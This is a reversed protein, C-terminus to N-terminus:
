EEKRRSSFTEDIKKMAEEPVKNPIIVCEDRYVKFGRAAEATKTNVVRNLGGIWGFAHTGDNVSFWDIDGIDDGCTEVKGMLELAEKSVGLNKKTNGIVCGIKGPGIPTWEEMKKEPQLTTIVLCGKYGFIAVMLEPKEKKAM